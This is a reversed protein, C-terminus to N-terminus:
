MQIYFNLKDFLHPRFGNIAPTVHGMKQLQKLAGSCPSRPTFPLSWQVLKLTHLKLTEPNQTFKEKLTEKTHKNPGWM